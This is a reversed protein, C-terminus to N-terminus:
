RNASVYNKRQIVVLCEVTFVSVWVHGQTCKETIMNKDVTTVCRIVPMQMSLLKQDETNVSKVSAISLNGQHTTGSHGLETKTLVLLCGIDKPM